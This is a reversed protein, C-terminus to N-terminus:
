PTLCWAIFDAWLGHTLAFGAAGVLLAGAARVAWREARAAGAADGGRALRRLAWPAALLGPSSALAFGAMATAGAAAGGTMAAVLLASHLLGCPWAFWLSGFLTARGPGRLRQWGGPAAAQPVRGLSSLWGPQRGTWLLWAGLALALVHLLTWLPRLAPSWAALGAVAGVSAAAVGGAVAYGALRAAHFGVTACPGGGGIAAACPAGCMAACHPAGALGLMAASAILAADAGNV